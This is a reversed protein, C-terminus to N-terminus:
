EGVYFDEYRRQVKEIFDANYETLLSMDPEETRRVLNLSPLYGKFLGTMALRWCYDVVYGEPDLYGGSFFGLMEFTRQPIFLMDGRIPLPGPALDVSVVGQPTQINGIRFRADYGLGPVIQCLSEHETNAALLGVRGSNSLVFEVEDDWKDSNMHLDPKCICFVDSGLSRAMMENYVEEVNMDTPYEALSHPCLIDEVKGFAEEGGAILAINWEVNSSSTTLSGVTERVNAVDTSDDFLMIGTIM